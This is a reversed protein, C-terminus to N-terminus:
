EPKNNVSKFHYQYRYTPQVPQVLISIVTVRHGQTFRKKLTNFYMVFHIKNWEEQGLLFPHAIKLSNGCYQRNM